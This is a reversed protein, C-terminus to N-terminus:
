FHTLANAPLGTLRRVRIALERLPTDPEYWLVPAATAGEITAHLDGTGRFGSPAALVVVAPRRDSAFEVIDPAPVSPGLDHVRWHDTRLAVTALLGPLRQGGAEPGAVIALGRPRGRRPSAVLGVLRECIGLALLREAASLSGAEHRAEVLRFAPLILGDCAAMPGGDSQHAAVVFSRATAEEGQTLAAALERIRQDSIKDGVGDGTPASRKAALRAVGAPDVEYEAGVKVAPLQGDRVWRYATQYHVSLKTAADELDV